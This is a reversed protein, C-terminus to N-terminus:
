CKGSDSNIYDNVEIKIDDDFSHKPKWGLLLKAKGITFFISTTTSTATTFFQNNNMIEMM